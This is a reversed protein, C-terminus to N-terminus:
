LWLGLYIVTVLMSGGFRMM